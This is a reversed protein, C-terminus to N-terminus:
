SSRSTQQPQARFFTKLELTLVLRSSDTPNGSLGISEIVVFEDSHEIMNILRRVQEYNGTVAFSITLSSADGRTQSIEAEAYSTSQPRLNSRRALERMENLLPVLREQPTAWWENYVMDIAKEIQRFSQLDQEAIQRQARAEVLQREVHERRGDLDNVRQEFRIRYTVFFLLNALFFVGLAILLWRKERWIM